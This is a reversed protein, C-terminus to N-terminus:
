PSDPSKNVLSQLESRLLICRAVRERYQALGFQSIHSNAYLQGATTMGLYAGIFLGDVLDENGPDVGWDTLLAQKLEECAAKRQEWTGPPDQAAMAKLVDRMIESIAM